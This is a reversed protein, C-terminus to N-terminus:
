ITTITGTVYDADDSSLWALIKGVGIPDALNSEALVIDYPQGIHKAYDALMRRKLPTDIYGPSVVNVRIGEKKLKNQMTVALSSVGGKSSGYAYSSSGGTAAGSSVLIITGKEAKKMLSVAHKCVLFSGTVNVDIVAKWTELDFEEIPVMSGKLIGATHILADLKGFEGEIASFMAIVSDEDTVNVGIARNGYKAAEEKCAAEDIDAWIVEAGFDVCCEAAAKGIGHAAGVVLIIKKQLSTM